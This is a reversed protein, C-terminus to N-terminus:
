LHSAERVERNLFGGLGFAPLVRVMRMVSAPFWDRGIRQWRARWGLSERRTYLDLGLLHVPTCVLQMAAPVGVQAVLTKLAPSATVADPIREAVPGPLSFSGFITMADRVLFASYTSTPIRRLLQTSQRVAAAAATSSSSGFLQAFRVDKWIGVGANVLFTSAFTAAMTTKGDVQAHTGLTEALNATAFTATYLTWVLLYPPSRVFHHPKCLLSGLQTRLSPLFPQNLSSKEVVLRDCVTVAPSILASSTAAATIDALSQFVLRQQQQQQQQQQHATPVVIDMLAHAM